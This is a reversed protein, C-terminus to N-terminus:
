SSEAIPPILYSKKIEEIKTLYEDLNLFKSYNNIDMELRKILPIIDLGYKNIERENAEHIILTSYYLLLVRNKSNLRFLYAKGGLTKWFFHTYEYLVELSPLFKQNNDCLMQEQYFDYMIQELLYREKEIIDKILIINKKSITRYFHYANKLIDEPFHEEGAAPRQKSLKTIINKFYAHTGNKLNYDEIYNRQDLFSFFNLIRINASECDNIALTKNKNTSDVQTNSSSSEVDFVNSLKGEDMTSKKEKIIEKLKSTEEKLLQVEEKLLKQSKSSTNKDMVMYALGLGGILFFASVTYLTGRAM